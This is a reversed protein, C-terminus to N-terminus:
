LKGVLILDVERNVLKDRQPLTLGDINCRMKYGVLLALRQINHLWLCFEGTNRPAKDDIGRMHMKQWLESTARNDIDHSAVMLLPFVHNLAALELSISDCVQLDDKTFSVL